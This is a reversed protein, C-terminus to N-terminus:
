RVCFKNILFYKFLYKSHISENNQVTFDDNLTNFSDNEVNLLTKRRARFERVRETSSKATKKIKNEKRKKRYDRCYEANTKRM